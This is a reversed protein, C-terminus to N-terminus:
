AVGKGEGLAGTTPQPTPQQQPPEPAPAQPRLTSNLHQQLRSLLAADEGGLTTTPAHQHREASAYFLADPPAHPASVDQATSTITGAGAWPSATAAAAVGWAAARM